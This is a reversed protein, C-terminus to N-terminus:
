TFQNLYTVYITQGEDYSWLEYVHGSGNVSFIGKLTSNDSKIQSTADGEFVINRTQDTILEVRIVVYGSPWNTLKVVGSGALSRVFYKATSVDIDVFSSTIDVNKLQTLEIKARDLNEKIQFFNDRFGQSDNDQGAVPFLVDIYQTDISSSM